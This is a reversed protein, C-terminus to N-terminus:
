VEAWKLPDYCKNFPRDLYVSVQWGVYNGSPTKVEAPVIRVRDIKDFSHKFFAHNNQSDEVMRLLIDEVVDQCVKRAFNEDDFDDPRYCQLIYFMIQQTTIVSTPITKFDRIYNIFVLAPGLDSSPLTRISGSLFEEMSM